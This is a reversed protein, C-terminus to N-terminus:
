SVAAWSREERIHFAQSNVAAAEEPGRKGLGAGGGVRDGLGGEENVSRLSLRVRSDPILGITGGLTWM